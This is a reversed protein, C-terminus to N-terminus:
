STLLFRIAYCFKSWLIPLNTKHIKYACRSNVYIFQCICKADVFYFLLVFFFKIKIKVVISQHPSVDNDNNYTTVRIQQLSATLNVSMPIHEPDPSNLISDVFVYSPVTMMLTQVTQVKISNNYPTQTLCAKLQDYTQYQASDDCALIQASVTIWFLFLVSIILDLSWSRMVFSQTPNTRSSVLNDTTRIRFLVSIKKSVSIAPITFLILM